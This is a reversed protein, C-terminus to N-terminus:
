FYPSRPYCAERLYDAMVRSTPLPRRLSGHHPHRNPPTLLDCLYGATVIRQAAHRAGITGSGSRRSRGSSRDSRRPRREEFSQAWGRPQANREDTCAVLEGTRGTAMITTSSGLAAGGAESGCGAGTGAVGVGVGGVSFVSEKGGGYVGAGDVRGRIRGDLKRETAREPAIGRDAAYTRSGHRWIGAASKGGLVPGACPVYRGLRRNSVRSPGSSASTHTMGCAVTAMRPSAAGNDEDDDLSGAIALISRVEWHPGIERRTTHGSGTGERDVASM